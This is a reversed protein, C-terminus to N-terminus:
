DESGHKDVLTTSFMAIKSLCKTGKDLCGCWGCLGDKKALVAVFCPSAWDSTVSSLIYGVLFLRMVPQYLIM